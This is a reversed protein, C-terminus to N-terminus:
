ETIKTLLQEIKEYGINNTGNLKENFVEKLMEFMEPASAKLKDNYKAKIYETNNGFYQETTLRGISSFNSKSPVRNGYEDFLIGNIENWKGKTGKFDKM